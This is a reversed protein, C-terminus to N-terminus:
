SLGEQRSLALWWDEVLGAEWRRPRGWGFPHFLTNSSILNYVQQERWWALPRWGLLFKCIHFEGSEVGLRALHGAWSSRHDELFSTIEIRHMQAVEKAAQLSRIQWRVWPELEGGKEPRRKIEM